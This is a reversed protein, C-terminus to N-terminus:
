LRLFDSAPNNRDPPICGVTTRTTFTPATGLARGRRHTRRSSTWISIPSRPKTAKRPSSTTPLCSSRCFRRSLRSRRRRTTTTRSCFLPLTFCHSAHCQPKKMSHYAHLTPCLPVKLVDEFPVPPGEHQAFRDLIHGHVERVVALDGRRVMTKVTAIVEPEFPTRSVFNTCSHAPVTSVGDRFSATGLKAYVFAILNDSVRYVWRKNGCLQVESPKSCHACNNTRAYFAPKLNHKLGNCNSPDSCLRTGECCEVSVRQIGTVTKDSTTDGRCAFDCLTLITTFLCSCVFHSAGDTHGGM